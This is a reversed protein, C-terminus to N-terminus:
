STTRLRYADLLTPEVYRDALDIRGGHVITGQQMLRQLAHVRRENIIRGYSESMQPDAGFARRIEAKLLQIM